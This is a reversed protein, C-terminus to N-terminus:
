DAEEWASFDPAVINHEKTISGRLFGFASPAASNPAVLRAVPEGHKTVVIEVNRERVDDLLQLCRDKFAGAGIELIPVNAVYTSPAPEALVSPAKKRAPM